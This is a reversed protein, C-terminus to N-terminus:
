RPAARGPRASAAAGKGRPPATEVTGETRKDVGPYLKLVQTAGGSKLVVETEAVKVLVADGYKQGLKVMEGIIIAASGSPAILVSQLVPGGATTEGEPEGAALGAPPRTPDTMAQSWAADGLALASGIALWAILASRRTDLPCRTM